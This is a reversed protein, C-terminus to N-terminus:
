QRALNPLSAFTFGQKMGCRHVTAKWAAAQQPTEFLRGAAHVWTGGRLLEFRPIPQGLCTEVPGLKALLGERTAGEALLVAQFARPTPHAPHSPHDDVAGVTLQEVGVQPPLSKGDLVHERTARVIWLTAGEAQPTNEVWWSATAEYSNAGEAASRHLALARVQPLQFSQGSVVYLTSGSSHGTRYHAELLLAHQCSGPAICQFAALDVLGEEAAAFEQRRCEMSLLTLRGKSLQVTAISESGGPSSSPLQVLATLEAWEPRGLFPGRALGQLGYAMPGACPRSELLAGSPAWTFRVSDADVWGQKVGDTLKLWPTERRCPMASMCRPKQSATLLTMARSGDWQVPEGANPTQWCAADDPSCAEALTGAPVRLEAPTRSVAEGLRLWGQSLDAALVRFWRRGDQAVPGQELLLAPVGQIRGM